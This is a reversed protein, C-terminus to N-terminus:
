ASYTINHAASQTHSPFTLVCMERYTDFAENAMVELKRLKVGPM